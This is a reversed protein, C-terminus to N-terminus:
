FFKHPRTIRTVLYDASLTDPWPIASRLTHGPGSWTSSRRETSPPQLPDEL